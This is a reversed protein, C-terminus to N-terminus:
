YRESFFSFFLFFVSYFYFHVEIYKVSKYVM